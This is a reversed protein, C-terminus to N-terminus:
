SPSSRKRTLRQRLKDLARFLRNRLTGEPEGVARALSKGDVGELYRLVIVDRYKEPLAALAELMEQVEEKAELLAAGSPSADPAAAEPAFDDNSISVTRPSRRRARLRDTVLNRAIKLVWGPFTELDRLTDLSRFARFFVEQAIDEAEERDRIRSRAFVAVLTWYKLMLRRYAEERDEQSMPRLVRQIWAADEAVAEGAEQDEGKGPQRAADSSGHLDPPQPSIM